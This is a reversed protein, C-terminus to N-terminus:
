RRDKDIYENPLTTQASAIKRGPAIKTGIGTCVQHGIFAGLKRRKTDIKKGDILTRHEKGDHRYDATITGAALNCDRGIVSHGIYAFHKGITGSMIVNDFLEIKALNCNHGIITNARIHTFSGIKSNKGIFVPGEIKAFDEIESGEELFVVGSTLVNEGVKGKIVSEKGLTELEQVNLELLNWPYQIPILEEDVVLNFNNIITEKSCFFGEQNVFIDLLEVSNLYSLGTFIGEDGLFYKQNFCCSQNNTLLISNVEKKLLALIHEKKFLSMCELFLFGESCILKLVSIEQIYEVSFEKSVREIEELNQSSYIVFELDLSRLLHCQRSLLSEDLIPLLGPLEEYPFLDQYHSLSLVVM